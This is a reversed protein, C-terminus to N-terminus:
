DHLDLTNQLSLNNAYIEEAADHQDRILAGVYQLGHLSDISHVEVCSLPPAGTYKVIADVYELVHRLRRGPLHKM